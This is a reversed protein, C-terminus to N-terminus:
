NKFVWGQGEVCIAGVYDPGVPVERLSWHGSEAPDPRTALLADEDGAKVSVDFQQLPLSLGKGAAKIYAEKRTWCRFFGVDREESPLLLLETQEQKSFFRSIADGDFRARIKEIDVGVQRKCTFGILGLGGSHSVNFDIPNARSHPALSPKGNESYSFAIESPDSNVYRGLITRLVARAAVYARRDRSFRYRSARELEDPALIQRCREEEEAVAELDVRWLQVENEALSLPAEFKFGISTIDLMQEARDLAM